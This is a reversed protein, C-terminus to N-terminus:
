LPENAHRRHPLVPRKTALRHLAAALVRRTDAPDIVQDVLGREAAIRPSLFTVRYEDELEARRADGDAAEDIQRRNLIAVAGAAGMVAVEATPWAVTLDNGM